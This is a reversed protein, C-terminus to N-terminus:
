LRQVDSADLWAWQVQVRRDNVSVLVSRGAWAVAITERTDEGDREWVLHVRVTAPEDLDHQAARSPIPCANTIAQWEDRHEDWAPQPM